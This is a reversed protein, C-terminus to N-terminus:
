NKITYGSPVKFLAADVSTLQEVSTAETTTITNGKREVKKLVIGQWVYYETNNNAYITCDRGLVKGTGKKKLALKKMIPTTFDMFNLEANKVGQATKQETDLTYSTTGQTVQVTKQNSMKLERREMHGYADFLKALVGEENGRTVKYKVLAREVGYRKTMETSNHNPLTPSTINGLLAANTIGFKKAIKNADFKKVTIKGDRTLTGAQGAKLKYTKDNKNRLTMEGRFVYATGAGNKIECAFVIDDDDATYGINNFTPSNYPDLVYSAPIAHPEDMLQHDISGFQSPHIRYKKAIRWQEETLDFEGSGMICHSMECEISKGEAMKKINGWIGGAVMEIVTPIRQEEVRIVVTTEEKLNVYTDWDPIWVKAGSEEKTQIRDEQKIVTQYEASEYSDDYQDNCRFSVEGWLEEFRCHSDPHDCNSYSPPEWRTPPTEDEVKLSIDLHIRRGKKPTQYLIVVRLWDVDDPVTFTGSNSTVKPFNRDSLDQWGLINMQGPKSPYFFIGIRPMDVGSVKIAEAKVTAGKKVTGKMEVLLDGDTRDYVPGQYNVEGKDTIKVGSISFKMKHGEHSLTGTTQAWAGLTGVILLALIVIFRVARKM